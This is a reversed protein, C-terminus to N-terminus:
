QMTGPRGRRVPDTGLAKALEDQNEDIHTLILARVLAARPVQRRIESRLREALRDLREVVECPLHIRVLATPKRM